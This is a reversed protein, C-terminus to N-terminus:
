LCANLLVETPYKLERQMLKQLTEPDKMSESEFILRMKTFFSQSLGRFGLSIAFNIIARDVASINTNDTYLDLL